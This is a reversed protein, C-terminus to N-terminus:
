SKPKWNILKNYVEASLIHKFDEALEVICETKIEYYKSVSEEKSNCRGGFLIGKHMVGYVFASGKKYVGHHVTNSSRKEILACNIINPVICCTEPSYLEGRFEASLLDKDIKPEVNNEYFKETNTTYWAAFNQYNLWEDCVVANEYTIRKPDSEYSTYCRKIINAWVSYAKSLSGDPHRCFFSGVGMYGKGYVSPCYPTKFRLAKLHSGQMKIKFDTGKVQITYVLRHGEKSTEVVEVVTGYKNKFEDGVRAVRIM